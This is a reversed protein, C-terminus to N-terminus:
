FSGIDVTLGDDKRAVLQFVANPITYSVSRVSGDALCLNLGGPHASGFMQWWASTAYLKDRIPGNQTCRMVSWGTFGQWYGNDTFDLRGWPSATTPEQNIQPPFYRSPDVFKEGFVFTNSTGDTIESMRGSPFAEARKSGRVLVTSKYFPHNIDDGTGDSWMNWCGPNAGGLGSGASADKWMPMAYDNLALKDTGNNALRTLPKRRSPCFYTAIPTARIQTANGSNYNNGQELYPLIQFL